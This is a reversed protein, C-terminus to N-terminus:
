NVPGNYFGHTKGYKAAFLEMDSCPEMVVSTVGCQIVDDFFLTWNGDSTFMIKKGAERLPELLKKLYPFIYTRYWEPHAVPGSTWCLDDHCMIVPINSEAYAIFFQKVWEYYREIVVGFRTYDLGMSTLLMDWGFMDILGSFLTIYVGGMNVTDPFFACDEKYKMELEDKLKSISYIGYEESPNFSYVEEPDTFGFQVKEDFDSSGESKEAYMAHGMKTYRGGSREYFRSNVYTKWIFAYDWNQMFRKQGEIRHATNITDIGTVEKILPWHSEASYEARPVQDLFEFNLAAMGSKYSM